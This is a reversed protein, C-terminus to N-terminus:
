EIRKFSADPRGFRIFVLVYRRQQHTGSEKFTAIKRVCEFAGTLAPGVILRDIIFNNLPYEGAEM